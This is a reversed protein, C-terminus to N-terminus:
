RVLGYTSIIHIKQCMDLYKIMVKSEIRSMPHKYLAELYDAAVDLPPKGLKRIEARINTEPVYLPKEQDPDLLLKIAEVKSGERQVRAKEGWTYSTM